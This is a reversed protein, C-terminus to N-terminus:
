FLDNPTLKPTNIKEVTAPKRAAGTKEFATIRVTNNAEIVTVFGLSKAVSNLAEYWPVNELRMSVEGAVEPGVVINGNSQIAITNIVDRIDARSFVMSVRQPSDVYVIHSKAFDRSDITFGYKKAIFALLAHTKVNELRLTIPVANDKEKLARINVNSITSLYDLVQKLPRDKVDLTLLKDGFRVSEGNEEEVIAPAAKMAVRDHEEQRERYEELTAVKRQLGDVQAALKRAAEWERTLCMVRYNQFALTGLVLAALAVFFTKVM